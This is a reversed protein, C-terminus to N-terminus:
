YVSPRRAPRSRHEAIQPQWQAQKWTREALAERISRLHRQEDRYYREILADAGPALGWSRAEQYIRNTLKENTQMTKLAGETGSLSRVAAFKETLFGKMDTEQSPPTGGLEQIVVSLEESHQIHEDRFQALRERIADAEIEDLAQEYTRVADSDMQVLSSLREIRDLDNM